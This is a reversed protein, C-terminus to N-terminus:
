QLGDGLGNKRCIIVHISKALRWPLDLVREWLPMKISFILFHSSTWGLDMKAAVKLMPKVLRPLKYNRALMHTCPGRPTTFIPFRSLTWGLDMKAVIPTVPMVLRPLKCDRSIIDLWDITEPLGKNYYDEQLPGHIYSFSKNFDM